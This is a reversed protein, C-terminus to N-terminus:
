ARKTPKTPYTASGSEKAHGPIYLSYESSSFFAGMLYLGEAKFDAIEM